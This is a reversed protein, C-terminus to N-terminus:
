KEHSPVQKDASWDIASLDGNEHMLRLADLVARLDVSTSTRFLRALRIVDERELRGPVLMWCYFYETVRQGSELDSCVRAVLEHLQEADVQRALRSLIPRLDIRCVVDDLSLTEVIHRITSKRALDGINTVAQIALGREMLEEAIDCGASRMCAVQETARRLTLDLLEVHRPQVHSRLNGVSKLAALRVDRDQAGMANLIRCAMDAEIYPNVATIVNMAAACLTDGRAYGMITDLHRPGLRDGCDALANSAYRALEEDDSGVTDALEDIWRDPLRACVRPACSMLCVRFSRRKMWWRGDIHSIDDDSLAAAVVNLATAISFPDVSEPCHEILLGIQSASPQIGMRFLDEIHDLDTGAHINGPVLVDTLFTEFGEPDLRM